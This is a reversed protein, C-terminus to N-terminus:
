RHGASQTARVLWPLIEDERAALTTLVTRYRDLAAAEDLAADVLTYSYGLAKGSVFSPAGPSTERADLVHRHGDDDVFRLVFGGSSLTATVERRWAEPLAARLIAALEEPAAREDRFPNAADARLEAASGRFAPPSPGPDLLASALEEEQDVFLQVLAQYRPMMATEDLGEDVKLYSFGFRRGRVLAPFGADLPRAELAHRIGSADRFRVSFGNLLATVTVGDRWDPPLLASIREHLRSPSEDM